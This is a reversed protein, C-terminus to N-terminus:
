LEEIIKDINKIIDKTEYSTHKDKKYVNWKDFVSIFGFTTNKATLRLGDFYDISVEKSELLKKLDSMSNLTRM